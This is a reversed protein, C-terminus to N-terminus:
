EGFDEVREAREVRVALLADARGQHAPAVSVGVLVPELAVQLRARQAEADVLAQAVALAVHRGGHALLRM